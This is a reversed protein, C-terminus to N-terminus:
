VQKVKKTKIVPRLGILTGMKCYFADFEQGKSEIKFSIGKAGFDLDDWTLEKKPANATPFFYIKKM